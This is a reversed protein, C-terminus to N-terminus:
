VVDITEVCPGLVSGKRQDDCLQGQAVLKAPVPFPYCRGDIFDKALLCLDFLEDNVPEDMAESPPDLRQYPEVVLSVPEHQVDVGTVDTAVFVRRTEGTDNPLHSVSIQVAFSSGDKRLASASLNSIPKAGPPRFILEKQSDTFELLREVSHGLVDVNEFGSRRFVAPNAYLLIGPDDTVLILSRPHDSQQIVRILYRDACATYVESILPSIEKTGTGLRGRSDYVVRVRDGVGSFYVRLKGAFKQRASEDHGEGQPILVNYGDVLWEM